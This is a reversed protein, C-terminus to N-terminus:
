IQILTYQTSLRASTSLPKKLLYQYIREMLENLGFSVYKRWHFLGGNSWIIAQRWLRWAM